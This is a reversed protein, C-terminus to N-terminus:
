FRDLSTEKHWFYEARLGDIENIAAVCDQDCNSGPFQIVAFKMQRDLTCRRCAARRSLRKRGPVRSHSGSDLRAFDFSHEALFQRHPRDHASCATAASRLFFIAVGEDQARRRGRKRSEQDLKRWSM